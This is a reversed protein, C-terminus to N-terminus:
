KLKDIYDCIKTEWGQKSLIKICLEKAKKLAVTKVFKVIQERLEKPLSEWFKRIAEPIDGIGKLNIGQEALCRKVEAELEPYIGLLKAILNFANKDEMFKKVADIVIPIDKKIVESELFCKIVPLPKASELDIQSTTLAILAILLITRM